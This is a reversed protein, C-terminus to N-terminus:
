AARRGSNRIRRRGELIEHEVLGRVLRPFDIEPHWGLDQILQRGVAPTPESVTSPQHAFHKRWDLGVYDFAHRVFSEVSHYEGSGLHFHGGEAHQQLWWLGRAADRAHTWEVTFRLDSLVLPTKEGLAVRAVTRSILTSLSESVDRESTCPAVTVTRIGGRIGDATRSLTPGTVIELIQTQPRLLRVAELLPRGARDPPLYRVGASGRPTPPERLLYFEDPLCLQLSRQLGDFTDVGSLLRVASHVLNPWRLEPRPYGYVEYGNELLLESLYSGLQSNVGWLIARKTM